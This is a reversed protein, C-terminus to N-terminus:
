QTCATNGNPKSQIVQSNYILEVTGKKATGFFTAYLAENANALPDAAVVDITGTENKGVVNYTLTFGAPNPNRVRWSNGCVYWLRIATVGVTPLSRPTGAPADSPAVCRAARQVEPATAANNAVVRLSAIIGSEYGYAPLTGVTYLGLGSSIVNCVPRNNGDVTTIDGYTPLIGNLLLAGWLVRISAVRAAASAGADATIQLATDIVRRDLFKGMGDILADFRAQDTEHRAASLAIAMQAGGLVGCKAVMGGINQSPPYYTGNQLLQYADQCPTPAGVVTQAALSSGCGQLVLLLPILGNRSRRKM